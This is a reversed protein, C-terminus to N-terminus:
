IVLDLDDLDLLGESLAGQEALDTQERGVAPADHRHAALGINLSCDDVIILELLQVELVRLEPKPQQVQDNLTQL